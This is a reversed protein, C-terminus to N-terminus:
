NRYEWRKIEVTIFDGLFFAWLFRSNRVQSTMLAMVAVHSDKQGASMAFAREEGFEVACEVAVGGQLPNVNRCMLEAGEDDATLLYPYTGLLLLPM